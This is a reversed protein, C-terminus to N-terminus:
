RSDGKAIKTKMKQVLTAFGDKRIVKTFQNRYSSVLSVGETVIDAVKWGGNRQVMSFTIEVPEERSNGKAQSKTDVLVTGGAGSHEGLYNVDFNATSRLNREYANRVLQKLLGAFESREADSRKDWEDGLSAKALADYDLIDDFIQHLRAKSAGSQRVLDFLENQRTRMLDTVAGASAPLAFGLTSAMVAALLISRLKV